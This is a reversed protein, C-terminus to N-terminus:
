IQDSPQKRYTHGVNAYTLSWTRGATWYSTLFKAKRATWSLYSAQIRVSADRGNGTLISEWREKLRRFDAVSEKASRWQEAAMATTVEPFFITFLVWKTKYLVAATRTKREKINLFLVSYTCLFVTAVCSQLIDITGREKPSSVWGYIIHTTTNTEHAQQIM